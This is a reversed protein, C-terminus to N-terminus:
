FMQKLLCCHSMKKSASIMYIDGNIQARCVMKCIKELYVIAPAAIKVLKGSPIDHGKENDVKYPFGSV